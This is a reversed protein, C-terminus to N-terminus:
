LGLKKFLFKAIKSPEKTIFMYISEPLSWVVVLIWWFPKNSKM